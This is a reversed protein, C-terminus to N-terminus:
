LTILVKGRAKGGEVREFVKEYEEIKFVSDVLTRVKGEELLRSVDGLDEGRPAMIFFYNKVDEVGCDKPKRPETPECISLLTGHDKVTYWAQALSEGGQCDIVLDVKRNSTPDADIWQKISQETYDIVDTAGLQRVFDVNKTGCVGVIGGVGAERALQVLWIGVSGSAAIILIRKSANAKRGEEGADLRALGGHDFLSQVATIASLPVSAATIPDISKPRLALESTYSITYERANGSHSADTRGWVETGAPFPSDAPAIVVTGSLDYCPVIEKAMSDPAFQPWRLENKCPSTAHVRILHETTSGPTLTPLPATTLIVQQKLPEPQRLTRITSPLAM